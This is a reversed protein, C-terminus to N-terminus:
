PLFRRVVEVVQPSMDDAKNAMWSLYDAHHHAVYGLTAGVHKGRRFTWDVPKPGAATDFWAELDSEYPRDEDLWAHLAEPDRPLDAYHGVQGFLVAAAAKADGEASHAGELEAGVYLRHAAALDRPEMRHFIALADLLLRGRHDLNMGCRGFEAQLLPLDFRRLGFGALDCGDLALLLSSARRSFPEELAVDDDTIGHVATAEPPIPVGPNFRRTRVGPADEGPRFIVLSLEVLRDQRPSPGTSEADIVVLPRNLPFPPRM